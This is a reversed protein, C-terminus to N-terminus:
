IIILLLLLLFLTGLAFFFWFPSTCAAPPSHRLLAASGSAAGAGRNGRLGARVRRPRRRCRPRLAGPGARGPPRRVSRSGGGSGLFFLLTKLLFFHVVATDAGPCATGQSRSRSIFVAQSSTQQLESLRQPHPPPPNVGFGKFPLVQYQQPTTKFKVINKAERGGRREGTSNRLKLM